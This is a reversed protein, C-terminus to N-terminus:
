RADIAAHVPDRHRRGAGEHSPAWHQSGSEFRGQDAPYRQLDDRTPTVVLPIRQEGLGAWIGRMEFDKVAALGGPLGRYSFGWRFSDRLCLQPPDFRFQELAPQAEVALPAALLAVILIFMSMVRTM